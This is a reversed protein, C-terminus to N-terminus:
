VTEAAVLIVLSDIIVTVSGRHRRRRQWGGVVGVVGITIPGVSPATVAPVDITSLQAATLSVQRIKAESYPISRQLM